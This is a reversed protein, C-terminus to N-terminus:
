DVALIQGCGHVIPQLEALATDQWREGAVIETLEVVLREDRRLLLPPEILLVQARDHDQVPWQGLEHGGLWLKLQAVRGNARYLGESRPYGNILRLGELVIAEVPDLGEDEDPPVSQQRVDDLQLRLRQGVGGGEVGEVWATDGRGDLLRVSDYDASSSAPLQSSAQWSFGSLVTRCGGGGPDADASSLQVPEGMVLAEQSLLRQMRIEAAVGARHMRLDLPTLQLIQEGLGPDGPFRIWDQGDERQWEIPSASMRRGDLWEVLQDERYEIWAASDQTDRWFGLLESPVGASAGSGLCGVLLAVVWRHTFGESM